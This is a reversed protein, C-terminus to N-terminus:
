HLHTCLMEQIQTGTVCLFLSMHHTVDQHCANVGEKADLKEALVQLSPQNQLESFLYVISRSCQMSDFLLLIGSHVGAPKLPCTPCNAKAFFLMFSQPLLESLCHESCVHPGSKSGQFQMLVLCALCQPVHRYDWCQLTSFPPHSSIASWGAQCLHLSETQFFLTSPVRSIVGSTGRQSWSCM